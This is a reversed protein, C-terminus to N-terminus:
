RDDKSDGCFREIEGHDHEKHTLFVPSRLGGDVLM